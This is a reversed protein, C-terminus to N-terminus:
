PVIESRKGPFVSFHGITGDAHTFGEAKRDSRCRALFRSALRGESYWDAGPCFSFQSDSPGNTSFWDLAIRLLWGENYLETPPMVSEGGGCRDLLKAVREIM